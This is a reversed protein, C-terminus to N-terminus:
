RASASSRTVASAVAANAHARGLDGELVHLPEGVVDPDELVGLTRRGPPVEPVAEVVDGPREDDHSALGVRRWHEVVQQVAVEGEDEAGLGRVPAAM